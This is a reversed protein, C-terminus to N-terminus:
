SSNECFFFYTIIGLIINLIVIELNIGARTNLIGIIVTLSGMVGNIPRLIEVADKFKM